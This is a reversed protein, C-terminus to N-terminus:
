RRASAESRRTNSPPLSSSRLSSIARRRRSHFDAAFANQTGCASLLLLMTEFDCSQQSTGAGFALSLRILSAGVICQLRGSWPTAEAMCRLGTIVVSGIWRRRCTEALRSRGGHSLTTRTFTASSRSPELVLHGLGRCGGACSRSAPGSSSGRTCSPSATRRHSRANTQTPITKTHAPQTGLPRDRTTRGRPSPAVLRGEPQLLWPCRHATGPSLHSGTTPAPCDAPRPPRPQGRDPPAVITRDDAGGGSSRLRFREPPTRHVSPHRLLQSDPLRRPQAQAQPLTTRM